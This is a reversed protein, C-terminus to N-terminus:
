LGGKANTSRAQTTANMSRGGNGAASGPPVEGASSAGSGFGILQAYLLLLCGCLLLFIMLWMLLKNGMARRSIAALTRKSRELGENARQLTGAAHQITERQSRLDGLINAGISETELVVRHAQQLKATGEAMKGEIRLLRARQDDGGEDGSSGGLLESRQPVSSAAQRLSARLAGIEARRAKAQSQLEKTESKGSSRAELDMQQCVEEAKQLEEEARGQIQRRLDSRSQERLAAIERSANACLEAHEDLYSAFIASPM